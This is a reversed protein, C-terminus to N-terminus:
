DIGRPTAAEAREATEADIPGRLTALVPHADTHTRGYDLNFRYDFGPPNTGEVHHLVTEFRDLGKALRAEPTEAADYEDWLDRLRAAVQEPLPRLLEAMADREAKRKDGSQKPAPTDGTLAEALDHLILLRILRDCDIEPLREELTLAMLALRWSHEATSEARGAVTMGSRLTDKLGAALRFFALYGGMEAADPTGNGAMVRGYRLSGAVDTGTTLFESKRISTTKKPIEPM